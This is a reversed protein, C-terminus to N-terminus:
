RGQERQRQRVRARRGSHGRQGAYYRRRVKKSMKARLRGDYGVHWQCGCDLCQYVNPRVGMSEALVDARDNAADETLYVVKGCGM